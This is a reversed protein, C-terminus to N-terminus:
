VIDYLLMLVLLACCPRVHPPSKLWFLVPAEDPGPLPSIFAFSMTTIRRHVSPPLQPKRLDPKGNRRGAGDEKGKRTLWKGAVWGEVGM